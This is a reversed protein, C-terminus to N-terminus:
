GLPKNGTLGVTWNVSSPDGHRLLIDARKDGDYDGIYVPEPTGGLNPAYSPNAVVFKSGDSQAVIYRWPNGNANTANDGTNYRLLIDSKGDGGFDGVYVAETTAGLDSTWETGSAFSTGTSLSVIYRTKTADTYRLLIDGKGDGNFDGVQVPESGGLSSTWNRAAVFGSGNSVAVIYVWQTGDTYRLLIDAKGDGSFDGVSVPESTGLGSVWDGAPQFGSGTSLAVNYGWKTGNFWRVLVDTKRDGNFDGTYVPDPTGGAGYFWNGADRFGAGTSIGVDWRWTNDVPYRLLVDTKGDGDFDGRYVAENTKGRGWAWNAVSRLAPIGSQNAFSTTVIPAVSTTPVTPTTSPTTPLTRVVITNQTYTATDDIIVSTDIIPIFKQACTANYAYMWLPNGAVVRSGPVDIVLGGSEALHMEITTGDFVVRWRQVWATNRQEVVAGQAWDAALALNSHVARIEYVDDGVAKFRFKQNSSNRNPQINLKAGASRDNAAVDLVGDGGCSSKLTAVKGDFSNLPQSLPGVAAIYLQFQQACSKTDPQMFLQEGAVIRSGNLTAVIGPASPRELQVLGDVGVTISWRDSESRQTLPSGQQDGGAMFTGDGINQLTYQNTAVERVLWRELKEVNAINTRTQEITTKGSNTMLMSGRGCMSRFSVTKGDLSKSPNILSEEVAAFNLQYGTTNPHLSSVEATPKPELGIASFVPNFDTVNVQNIPQGTVLKCAGKDGYYSQVDVFQINSNRASFGGVVRRLLGNFQDELQDIFRGEDGSFDLGTSLTNFGKTGQPCSYAGSNSEQAPEFLHPYSLVRITANPMKDLLKQYSDAALSAIRAAEAETVGYKAPDNCPANGAIGCFTVVAPWGLGGTTRVDNGFATLNVLVGAGGNPYNLSAIQADLQPKEAGACALNKQNAIGGAFRRALLAGTNEDSKRWCPSGVVPIRSYLTQVYTVVAEQDYEWQKNRTGTGASYSDGLTVVQTFTPETRTAALVRDNGIVGSGIAGMSVLLGSFGFAFSRAFRM